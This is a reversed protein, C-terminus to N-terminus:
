HNNVASVLARTGAMIIDTHTGAGWTMSGDPWRVGVYSCARSTSGEDLSHESYTELKFELGTADKIANCIADM